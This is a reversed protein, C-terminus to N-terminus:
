RLINVILSAISIAISTGSIVLTTAQGIDSNRAKTKNPEVYVVDNQQLYYYPSNIVNADNLNLRIYHKQGTADERILSVNDRRGYITLDGAQALADLISIKEQSVNIVGPRTVEGIVSVHYSSMRVTVIPKEDDNLFPKILSAIKDQCENVTLGQVKIKGILPYTISGDNDVLFPIVSGGSTSINRNSTMSNYILQNFQAAVERDTLSVTITLEDKPMIRAAYLGKSGEYSISDANQFYAVQQTSKCGTFVLASVICVLSILIKKM